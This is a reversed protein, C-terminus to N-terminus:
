LLLGKDALSVASKKLFALKITISAGSALQFPILDGFKTRYFISLDLNYLPRNSNMTILRYQAQPIYVLYPRYNGSDVTLDTIINSIAANMGPIQIQQGNNYIVPTSVMNPQIPLTNSCFVVSTIPSMNFITPYEQYLTLARFSTAPVGSGIPYTPTIVSENVGSQNAFLIRYNKGAQSLETSFGNSMAPFSNFLQYLAANFNVEIVPNTGTYGVFSPAPIFQPTNTAPDTQNIATSASTGTPTTAPASGGPPIYVGLGSVTTWTGTAFVSVMQGSNLNFFYQGGNVTGYVWGLPIYNPNSGAPPNVGSVWGKPKASVSPNTSGPVLSLWPQSALVDTRVPYSSPTEAVSPFTHGLSSISSGSSSIAAGMNTSGSTPLGSGQGTTGVGKGVTRITQGFSQVLSSAGKTIKGASTKLGNYFVSMAKGNASINNAASATKQIALSPLVSTMASNLYNGAANGLTTNLEDTGAVSALSQVSNTIKDIGRNGQAWIDPAVLGVAGGQGQVYGATEVIFKASNSANDWVFLPPVSAPNAIGQQNLIGSLGIFATNLAEQVLYTFYGYSYCNYYGGDNNQYGNPKFGSPVPAAQNQPIWWIPMTFFGLRKPNANDSRDVLELTVSYITQNIDFAKPDQNQLPVISPIFVPLSSTECTFRMISLYYDDPKEVFPMERQENYYFTPPPATTDQFNTATVDLYIQDPSSANRIVNMQSM